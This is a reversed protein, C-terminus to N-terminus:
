NQKQKDNLLLVNKAENSRLAVSHNKTKIYYAGGFPSKRLLSVPSGPLLGMAMLKCAIYGNAFAAITATEGIQLQSINEPNSM